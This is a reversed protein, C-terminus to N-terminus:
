AQKAAIAIITEKGLTTPNVAAAYLLGALQRPADVNSAIAPVGLDQLAGSPTYTRNPGPYQSHVAWLDAYAPITTPGPIPIRSRTVTAEVSGPLATMVQQPTLGQPALHYSFTEKGTQLTFPPFNLLTAADAKSPVEPYRTAHKWWLLGGVFILGVLLFPM